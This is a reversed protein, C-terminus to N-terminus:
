IAMQAKEADYVTTMNKGETKSDYMARDAQEILDTLPPNGYSLGLSLSIHIDEGYKTYDCLRVNERIREAVAFAECQGVGPLVIIFEDGGFRVAYSGKRLSKRMCDAVACLLEDGILHGYVDNITKFNDIDIFLLALPLEKIEATLPSQEEVLFQRNYLGTLQDIYSKHLLLNNERLLEVKTNTIDILTLFKATNPDSEDLPHQTLLLYSDEGGINMHLEYSKYDINFNYNNIYNIILDGPEITQTHLVRRAENNISIIKNNKGVIVTGDHSNMFLTRYVYESKISLLRHKMVARNVFIVFILLAVYMLSYHLNINFIVPLIYESVISILTGVGAGIFVYLLQTKRQRNVTIIYSKILMIVAHVAPISFIVAMAPAVIPISLRWFTPDNYDIPFLYRSLITVTNLCLTLFFWLDLETELLRYTFLLFLVSINLMSCWYVTKVILGLISTDTFDNAISLVMWVMVVTIFFLFTRNIIDFGSNLWVFSAIFVMVTFILSFSLIQVM